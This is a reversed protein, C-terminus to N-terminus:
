LVITWAIAVMTCAVGIAMTRHDNLDLVIKLSNHLWLIM